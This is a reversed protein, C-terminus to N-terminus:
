PLGGVSRSATGHDVVGRLMDVLQWATNPDMIQSRADFLIPSRDQRFADVECGQCFRPDHSYLTEGNRNQVRDILTPEVRKGGNAFMGYAAVMQYLTTEGAGLAYAFHLPMNAYVGFREAYEAVRDMGVAQAIRVTMLNKSLELGRRLPLPGAYNGSSNKPRWMKRGDAIAIPADLVITDPRYGSDLAAAYVFPKFASGPQRRAQTARNFVSHQFSFGGVLAQVRGSDPDMAMFAGQVEPIQRMAWGEDEREVDVVDGPQWLDGAGRPAGAEAVRRVWERERSLRLTATGDEEVGPVDGIGVRAGDELVELVVGLHWGDIDRPADVDALRERWGET